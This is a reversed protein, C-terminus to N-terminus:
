EIEVERTTEVVAIGQGDVARILKYEGRYTGPPWGEAPKKKGVFRYSQAKPKEAQETNEVVVGGRPGTIRLSERDGAQLGYIQVWFLLAQADARLKKATLTGAEIEDPEPKRPAFGAGLLGSPRYALAEAAAESWLPRPTARCDFEEQLGMYPDVIRDKYRVEFHVHPFETNGSLGILGLKQGSVVKDGQNVAISGERMHGYQTHWGGGHDIIVSNGAERDAIAAQGIDRVNVDRMGDRLRLVTGPAAAVVAVGAAMSALSPIRIDTGKHGDYTLRGCTFDQSGAGPDEDVYNQVMCETGIECDVPLDFRPGDAASAAALWATLALTTAGVILNNRFTHLVPM